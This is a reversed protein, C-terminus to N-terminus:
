RGIASHPAGDSGGFLSVSLPLFGCLLGTGAIRMQMDNKQKKHKSESRLFCRLLKKWKFMIIFIIDYVCRM